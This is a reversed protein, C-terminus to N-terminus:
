VLLRRLDDTGRGKCAARVTAHPAAFGLQGDRRDVPQLDVRCETVEVAFILAIDDVGIIRRRLEGAIHVTIGKGIRGFDREVRPEVPVNELLTLALQGQAAVRAIHAFIIEIGKAIITLLGAVTRARRAINPGGADGECAAIRSIPEHVTAQGILRVVIQRDACPHLVECVFIVVGVPEVDVDEPEVIQVAARRACITDFRREFETRKTRPSRRASGERQGGDGVGQQGKISSCEM